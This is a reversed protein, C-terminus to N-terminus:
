ISGTIFFVNESCSMDKVESIEFASKARKEELFQSNQYAPTGYNVSSAASHYNSAENGGYLNIKELSVGKTVRLLSHHMSEDYQLEDIIYDPSSSLHLILHCESNPLDPLDALSIIHGPNESYYVKLVQSASPSYAIYDQPFLLAGNLEVTYWSTDYQNIKIRSISLGSTELIKSSRNVLEVYEGDDIAADFLVENFVLDGKEIPDPLAFLQSLGEASSGDCALLGEQIELSYVVRDIFPLPQGADDLLGAQRDGPMGEAPYTEGHFNPNRELVLKRKPNNVTLM